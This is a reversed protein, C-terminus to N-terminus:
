DLDKFISSNYESLNKNIDLKSLNLLAKITKKSLYTSIKHLSNELFLSATLDYKNECKSLYDLMTTEEVDFIDSASKAFAYKDAPAFNPATKM